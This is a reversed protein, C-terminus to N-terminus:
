ENKLFKTLFEKTCNTCLDYYKWDDSGPKVEYFEIRGYEETEEKGCRDCKRIIM